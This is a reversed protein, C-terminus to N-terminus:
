PYEPCSTPPLRPSSWMNGWMNIMQSAGGKKKLIWIVMLTREYKTYPLDPLLSNSKM